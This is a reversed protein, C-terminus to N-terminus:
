KDSLTTQSDSLFPSQNQKKRFESPTMGVHKKFANNFASLSNFGVEFGIAAIGLHKNNPHILQEKAKSIRRSNVYDYFTQGTKENIVQSLHHTSSKLEEALLPLTLNSNLFLEKSTMITQLKQFLTEALDPTLTSKKYKRHELYTGKHSKRLRGSFIEPQALGFYGMLYIILSTMIWEYDGGIGEGVFYHILVSALWIIILCFILFKIWKLDIKEISSFHQKIRQSFRKLAIISVILYAPSIIFVLVFIVERLLFRLRSGPFILSIPLIVFFGISFPIFHLFRNRTFSFAPDTLSQIYLYFLPGINIFGIGILLTHYDVLFPINLAHTLAHISISFSFFFLINALIRNALKNRKSTKLLVVGLIVGQLTGLLLIINTTNYLGSM